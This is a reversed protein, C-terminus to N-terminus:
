WMEIEDLPDYLEERIYDEQCSPCFYGNPSNYNRKLFNQERKCGCRGCKRYYKRKKKPKTQTQTAM